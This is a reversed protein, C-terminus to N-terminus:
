SELVKIFLKSVTQFTQLDRKREHKFFSLIVTITLPKRRTPGKMIRLFNLIVM